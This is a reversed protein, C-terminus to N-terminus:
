EMSLFDQFFIGRAPAFILSAALAKSIASSSSGAKLRTTTM